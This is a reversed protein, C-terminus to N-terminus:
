VNVTVQGIVPVANHDIEINVTGSNIKLNSYDVLSDLNQIISGIRSIRVVANTESSLAIDKFYLKVAEQAETKVNDVTKGSALEASFSVSVFKSKAAAATFKAGINAAGEGLGSAGPDIYEQVASVVSPDAPLGERNIIIGKVTNAGAWLPVIRARGVGGISECWTKYHQKNGNESPGAIKEFIRTRLSEDTEEEAGPQVCRMFVASELGDITDVPVAATDASINNSNTGPEEAELFLTNDEQILTFYMGNCFFREGTEPTSGTFSFMYKSRSAPFRKLGHEQAKLDLYEGSATDLFILRFVHDLDTYLKAIKLTIGSVADYFISGPRTDIDSPANDLIDQMLREYTKEEFM